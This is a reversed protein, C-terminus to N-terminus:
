ATNTFLQLKGDGKAYIDCSSGLAGFDIPEPCALVIGVDTDAPASAGNPVIRVTATKTARMVARVAGTAALAYSGTLSLDSTLAAM